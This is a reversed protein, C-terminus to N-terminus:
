AASSRSASGHRTTATMRVSTASLTRTGPKLFMRVIAGDYVGGNDRILFWGNPEKTDDDVSQWLGAVTPEAGLTHGTAVLSLLAAAVTAYRARM